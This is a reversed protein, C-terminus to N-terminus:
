YELKIGLRVQRPPGYYHPSQGFFLPSYWSPVGYDLFYGRYIEEYREGYQQVLKGGTEPNSLFGDDTPSGTSSFVNDINKTDLVNIVYLYLTAGLRGGIRVTKDIRLDVQFVWPTM